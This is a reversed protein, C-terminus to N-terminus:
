AAALRSRQAQGVRPRFAFWLVAGLAVLVLGLVMSLSYANFPYPANKLFDVVPEARLMELLFRTGGELMLMLAFVRGPAHSLTFYATLVGALLLANFASYLQAPHMPLSKVSDFAPRLEKDTRATYADILEGEKNTLVRRASRPLIQDKLEPAIKSDRLEEQVPPSGYPFQTAYWAHPDCTAGYCCGNLFCGVRGLGLGIMLCPAIIDMGLKVPIKKWIAYGVLIPFALLFGGYYTLGGSSLDIMSVFNQWASRDAKTFESINELVHSLRAGVIGAVLGILAANVFLDGPEGKVSKPLSRRALFKALQTALLFGIVLMVGYGYIPHTGHILPVWDPIHFRFFEQLM